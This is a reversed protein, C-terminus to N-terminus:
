CFLVALPQVLLNVIVMGARALGSSRAQLVLVVALSM